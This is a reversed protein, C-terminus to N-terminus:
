ETVIVRGQETRARYQPRYMDEVSAAPHHYTGPSIARVIYALRFPEDGYHDVATLFREARFESHQVNANLKLWDLARIDGARMLNPNDIEFGAPLPDNVMLRAERRGLPTIELLTVLRTGAKVSAPDTEMGEMTYYKRSIRWGDASAPEPESPVGFTTLVMPIEKNGDNTISVAGDDAQSELMRVLPGEVPQGDVSLNGAQEEILARTALLTWISEQTSYYRSPQLAIRNAIADRNVAQSGAEASLALVGAADRHLTGYDARWLTPRSQWSNLAREAHKFMADARVSDGYAALAAGLQARALPTRFATAKTDAYYRLDGVAAAGERALVFLAYALDTGGEDFDPYYNVQNRLNDMATRYALDPVDFGKARARSLFDTVYADLWMDGSRPGWLGFAGNRAQRSLVRTIAQDVREKATKSVTLGMADAVEQFYVLPMAASTVQETCGYPYRDLARLLGPTDFRALPGSSMTASGTGDHLGAFVAKDFTFTEGPALSFRSQRSIEPDTVIVGLTLEKVLVQQDPTTLSVRIKHTGVQDASVPVSLVAKGLDGVEIQSSTNGGLKVGSASLDLGMQGSPGTAHVIELLLRSEDGLSMFRPLSATVVVPDRVLVDAEAQGVGTKSWTVAMLRVTGNFSPLDFSTRAYGDEGVKVPGSFYAVLEETPPPSEFSKEVLADGGSRVEGMTGNMGDILRGYVDRMAMGLKRQGFYHGEPDPSKFGTLNLIGVDVAAVTAWATEGPAVGEVKLAVDLPGRPKAEPSVDLTTALRRKGPDIAAHALGLARAPNRGASVDMPRIITATVYAGTGWEDTVPFTLTNEGEKLDVAKMTILRNSMVSVLGKGPYRPVITVTATEGPLYAPKDLSLDLTDPTQSTDAPVYWGAYFKVSSAAFTGDTREVRLEYRGWDVVGSVTIPNDATLDVAGSEVRTRTTVAEWRWNGRQRYWQYRRNLRNLEWRVPMATQAGDTGVAIVKFSAPAGRSAVDEFDPKIGIMPAAPTLLKDIRREVPRGSGESVTVSIDARLPRDAREIKPFYLTVAAQGAADTRLDGGFAETQAKFPADHRGFQYGPFDPLARVARLRVMGAVPLDGAPAGFLYKADVTLEPRDTPAIPGDPLALEFDIREPLFDEVLVTRTALAPADTDAHLEISWSGRPAASSVPLEFVYGGAEASKALSRSYEVGDPRRLIASLPLGELADVEGDRALATVHITEGAHYAGRDTAVFLDIPPAPERGEVGRDSLDFEPDELSLLAIDNEGDKAMVMSPRSGGKGRTLGAPFVAYGEANTTATGLINNTVSLLTVELGERMEASSLSRVFVHLGDVGSMTALGLDSIIFAQTAYTKRDQSDSNSAVLRYLGPELDAIVDGMPLRTVVDENLVSEIEGTGSWVKESFQGGGGRSQDSIYGSQVARLLNRESVHILTLDLKETNVTTIPIAAEASKPLVYANGPFAIRPDRDRIYFNLTYPKHTVEGTSSPLGERFTVEYRQGHKVGEICLQNASPEIVYGSGELQVFPEYDVGVKALDESFTACVRPIVADSQVDHEVIRFGYQAIARDLAKAIDERPSLEAALRLAYVSDRGRGADELSEALALLVAARKAPAETRLYANILANRYGISNFAINNKLAARIDGAYAIWHDAEDTLVVAAGSNSVARSYRRTSRAQAAADLYTVANFENVPHTRSLSQIARRASQFDNQGIFDELEAAREEARPFVEPRTDIVIASIAGSFPQRERVESKPFCSGASTNFTFAKCNTDTLCATRCAEYTTDFIARLDSGYYDVNTEIVLRREPILGDTGQAHVLAPLTFIVGVLAALIRRM